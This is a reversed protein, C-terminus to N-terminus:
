HLHEAREKELRLENERSEEYIRAMREAPVTCAAEMEEVSKLPIFEIKGDIEIIAVKSGKVLGFKKRIELPRDEHRFASPEAV